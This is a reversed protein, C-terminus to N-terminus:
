STPFDTVDQVTRIVSCSATQCKVCQSRRLNFPSMRAAPSSFHCAGVHKENIRVFFLDDKEADPVYWLKDQIRAPSLSVMLVYFLLEIIIEQGIDVRNTCWDVILTTQKLELVVVEFVNPLSLLCCPPDPHLFAM